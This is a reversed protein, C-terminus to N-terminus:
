GHCSRWVEELRHNLIGRAEQCTTSVDQDKPVGKLLPEQTSHTFLSGAQLKLQASRKEDTPEPEADADSDPEVEPDDKPRKFITVLLVAPDPLRAVPNELTRIDLDKELEVWMKGFVWTTRIVHKRLSTVPIRFSKPKYGVIVQPLEPHWVWGTKMIFKPEIKFPMAQKPMWHKPRSLVPVRGRLKCYLKKREPTVFCPAKVSYWHFDFGENM